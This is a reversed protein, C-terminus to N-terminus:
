TDENEIHEKKIANIDENLEVSEEFDDSCSMAFLATFLVLVARFLIAKRM